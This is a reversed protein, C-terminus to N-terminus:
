TCQIKGAHFVLHVANSLVHRTRKTLLRRPRRPKQHTLRLYTRATRHFIFLRATPVARSKSQQATRAPPKPSQRAITKSIACAPEALTGGSLYCAKNSLEQARATDYVQATRQCFEKVEGERKEGHLEPWYIGVYRELKPNRT